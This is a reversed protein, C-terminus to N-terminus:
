QRRTQEQHSLCHSTQHCHEQHRRRRSMQHKKREQEWYLSKAVSNDSKLIFYQIPEDLFGNESSPMPMVAEPSMLVNDGRLTNVVNFYEQIHKLVIDDSRKNSYCNKLWEAAREM